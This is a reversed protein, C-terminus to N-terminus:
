ASKRLSLARMAAQAVSRLGDLTANGKKAANLLKKAIHKRTEHDGGVPLERCVEELVVEM